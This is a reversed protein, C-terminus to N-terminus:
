QWRSYEEGSSQLCALLEGPPLSSVASCLTGGRTWLVVSKGGEITRTHWGTQELERMADGDVHLTKGERVSRWDAEYMYILQGDHMYVVHALKQGDHEELVGGVLRCDRMVPVQVAFSTKGRFFGLVEAPQESVVQPTIEGRLVKTYNAVSQLIVDAAGISAQQPAQPNPGSLFLLIAAATAGLALARRFFRQTALDEFWRRIGDFAPRDARRIDDAIRRRLPLPTNVFAVRDHVFRKTATQLKFEANCGGCVEMHTRFQEMDSKPLVSDVAAGVRDRYERCEM